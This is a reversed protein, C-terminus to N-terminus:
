RRGWRGEVTRIKAILWRGLRELEEVGGPVEGERPWGLAREWISSKM